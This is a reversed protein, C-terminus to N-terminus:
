RLLYKKIIGINQRLLLYMLLIGSTDIVIDRFKGERTPVFSQHIEDTIAYLLAVAFAWLYKKKSMQQTKNLARFLLLYLFAYEIMHLLKFILFDYLFTNTIGFHPRSSMFFIVMMWLIPPLWYNLVPTIRKM